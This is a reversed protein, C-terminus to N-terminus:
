EYNYHASVLNFYDKLSLSDWKGLIKKLQERRVSRAQKRGPHDPSERRLAVSSLKARMVADEKKFLDMLQWISPHMSM